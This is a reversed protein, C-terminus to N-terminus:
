GLSDWVSYSPSPFGTLGVNWWDTMNVPKKAGQGAERVSKIFLNIFDHLIYEQEKLAKESFQPSLMKRYYSHQERDGTLITVTPKVTDHYRPDKIMEQKGGARYGYIERWNEPKLYSLEDPAIRVVDGYREHLTLTDQAITGKALARAYWLSSVAAIRPGPYRALPHFYLNYIAISTYYLTWQIERHTHDRSGNPPFEVPFPFSNM